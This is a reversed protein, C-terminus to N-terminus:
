PKSPLTSSPQHILGLTTWFWSTIHASAVLYLRFMSIVWYTLMVESVTVLQLLPKVGKVYDEKIDRKLYM